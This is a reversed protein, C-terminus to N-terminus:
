DKICRVSFGTARSGTYMYANRYYIRLARAFTGDVNATWYYGKTHAQDRAGNGSRRYGALVLKLPSNIAGTPDNSSWSLREANLEAETPLRYGSPCPNNIGNVGQWLNNNQPSRWDYPSNPSYSLIFNSHGPTDSSSLTSTTGLNWCQHGDAFRGWQYLDGYAQADTSSQAVRSAGLDRDMWTKGTVPNTVDVITTPASTCHVIGHPWISDTNTNVTRILTCSQGGINLAFSATGNSAPPGSITYTLSGNGNFFFGAELAATLGTVGSSAVTQGNHAGGNGGTYPISSNVGNAAVSATLTGNNTASNCDLTNISGQIPEYNKICRVSFASKRSSSYMYAASSFNSDAKFILVRADTGDVSASWYNGRFGVAFLRGFSGDRSGGATLKLPSNFAGIANNSSWSQLEANLETETPLRYGSPCPNNTGNADQWLNNNQPSRWDWPFSAPILILYGHGPTDTSSLTATSASNRCQHGDAFRGWQYLDGYAQTDTSSQAVRSAGLNRDMWTKGTIPNTVDFIATPSGSCHVLGPPWIDDTKEEEKKCTTLLLSTMMALVILLILKKM